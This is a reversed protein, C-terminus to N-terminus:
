ESKHGAGPNLGRDGLGYTLASGIEAVDGQWCQLNEVHKFTSLGKWIM